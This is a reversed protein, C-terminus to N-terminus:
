SIVPMMVSFPIQRAGYVSESALAKAGHLYKSYFRGAVFRGGSHDFLGAVGRLRPHNTRVDDGRLHGNVALPAPDHRFQRRALVHAVDAAHDLRRQGIRVGRPGSETRYGHGLPGSQDPREQDTHGKRFGRRGSGPQRQDADVMERPMDLRHRQMVAFQRHGRHHEHDRASM